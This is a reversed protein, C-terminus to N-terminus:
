VGLEKRLGEGVIPTFVADFVAFEEKLGEEFESVVFAFELETGVLDSLDGVEGLSGDLGSEFDEFRDAQELMEWGEFVGLEL